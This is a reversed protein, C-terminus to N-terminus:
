LRRGGGCEGGVEGEFLENRATHLMKGIGEDSAGGEKRGTGEAPCDTWAFGYLRGLLRETESYSKYEGISRETGRWPSNVGSNWLCLYITTM